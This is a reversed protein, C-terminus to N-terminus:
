DEDCNELNTEVEEDFTDLIIWYMDTDEFDELCSNDVGNFISICESPIEKTYAVSDIDSTYECRNNWDYEFSHPSLKDFNIRLVVCDSSRGGAMKFYERAVESSFALYIKGDCWMDQFNHHPPNLILGGTLINNLYKKNTAHYLYM